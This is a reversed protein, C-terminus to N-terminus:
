RVPEYVTYVPTVLVSRTRGELLSDLMREQAVEEETSAHLADVSHVRIVATRTGAPASALTPLFDKPADKAAITVAQKGPRQGLNWGDLYWALQPQYKAYPIDGCLIVLRSINRVALERAVAEAGDAPESAEANLRGFSVAFMGLLLLVGAAIQARERTADRNASRMREGLLLIFGLLLMGAAGAALMPLVGPRLTFARLSLRLLESSSWVILAACALAGIARFVPSERPHHAAIGIALAAPLALHLVFHPLKAASLTLVLLSSLAWVTTIVFADRQAVSRFRVLALVPLLPLAILLQNLYYWWAQVSSRSYGQVTIISTAALLHAPYEPHTWWM